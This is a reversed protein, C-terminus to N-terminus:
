FPLNDDDWRMQEPQTVEVHLLVVIKQKSNITYRVSYSMIIEASSIDISTQALWIELGETDRAGTKRFAFPNRKLAFRIPFIGNSVVTSDGCDYVSM